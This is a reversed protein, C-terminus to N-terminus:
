RAAATAVALAAESLCLVEDIAPPCAYAICSYLDNRAAATMVTFATESLCLVDEIALSCACMCCKFFGMYLLLQACVLLLSGTNHKSCM